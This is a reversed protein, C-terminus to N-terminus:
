KEVYGFRSILSNRQEETSMANFEENSVENAKKKSPRAGKGGIGGGVKAADEALKKERAAKQEPTENSKVSLEPHLALAYRYLATVKEVTPLNLNVPCTKPDKSLNFMEQYVDSMGPYNKEDKMMGAIISADSQTKLKSETVAARYETEERNWDMLREIYSLDDQFDNRVPRPHNDVADQTKEKQPVTRELLTRMAALNKEAEAARQAEKTAFSRMEKPDNPIKKSIDDEESEEKDESAEEKVEPEEKVEEQIEEEEEEPHEKKVLADLKKRDEALQEETSMERVEIEEIEKGM